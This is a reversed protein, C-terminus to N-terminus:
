GRWSVAGMRCIKALSGLKRNLGKIGGEAGSNDIETDIIIRGDAM